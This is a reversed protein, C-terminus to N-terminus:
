YTYIFIYLTIYIYPIYSVYSKIKKIILEIAQCYKKKIYTEIDDNEDWDYYQLSSCTRGVM